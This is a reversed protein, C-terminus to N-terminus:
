NALAPGIVSHPVRYTTTAVVVQRSAPLTVQFRSEGGRYRYTLDGGMRRALRRSVSLGLGVADPQGVTNHSRYYSDFISEWEERPLGNGDDRVTIMMAQGLQAAEVAVRSGGHRFANSLLNRMIQRVRGADAIVEVDASISVTLETGPPITLSSAVVDVEHALSINGVSFSVDDTDLRAAVLLDEVISAVEASQQHLVSLLEERETDDLDSWKRKLISAYGVVATLPTRLEHSVAALFRDKSEGSKKLRNANDRVRGMLEATILLMLAGLVAGQWEESPRTIETLAFMVGNVAIMVMAVVWTRRRGFLTGAVLVPVASLAGVVDGAVARVPAFLLVYLVISVAVTTWPDRAM